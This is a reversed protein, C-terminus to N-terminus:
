VVLSTICCGMAVRVGTDDSGWLVGLKGALGAGTESWGESSAILIFGRICNSSFVMGNAVIGNLFHTWWGRRPLVTGHVRSLM